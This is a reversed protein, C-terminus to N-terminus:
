IVLHMSKHSQGGASNQNNEELGEIEKADLDFYRNVKFVKISYYYKKMKTDDTELLFLKLINVLM